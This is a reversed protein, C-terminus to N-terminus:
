PTPESATGIADASGYEHALRECVTRLFSSISTGHAQCILMVREKVAAPLKVSVKDDIKESAEAAAQTLCDHLTAFDSIEPISDLTM